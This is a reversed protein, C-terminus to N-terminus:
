NDSSETPTKPHNANESWELEAKPLSFYLIAVLAGIAVLPILWVWQQPWEPKPADNLLSPVFLQQLRLFLFIAFALGGGLSGAAGALGFKRASIAALIAAPLFGIAFNLGLQKLAFVAPYLFHPWVSLGYIAISQVVFQSCGFLLHTDLDRERKVSHDLKEDTQLPEFPMLFPGPDTLFYGM